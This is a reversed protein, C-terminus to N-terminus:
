AAHPLHPRAAAAPPVLPFEVEFRTGKGPESSFHISGHHAEIVRQAGSLGLGTGNAKTTFYPSFIKKFAHRPIGIGTDSVTVRGRSREAGCRGTKLELEGGDPMAQLANIMLNVFVRRLDAANAQVWGADQLEQRVAVNQHSAQLIPQVLELSEEAICRLELPAMDGSSDKLHQRLRTVIEAGRLIAQHAIATYPRRQEAPKHERMEMLTVAKDLTDLVNNFDHALGATMEGIARGRETEELRRYLASLESIDRIVLLAGAPKGERVMASVSLLTDACQEDAFRFQLREGRV